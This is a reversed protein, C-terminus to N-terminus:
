LSYRFNKEKFSTIDKDEGQAPSTLSAIPSLPSRIIFLLYHTFELPQSAEWSALGKPLWRTLIGAWRGRLHQLLQRAGSM